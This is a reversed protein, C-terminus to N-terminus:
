NKCKYLNTKIKQDKIGLNRLFDAKSHSILKPSCKNRWM